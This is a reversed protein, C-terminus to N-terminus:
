LWMCVLTCQVTLDAFYCLRLKIVKAHKASLVYKCDEDKEDGDCPFVKDVTVLRAPVDYVAAFVRAFAIQQASTALYKITM